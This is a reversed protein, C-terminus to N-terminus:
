SSDGESSDDQLRSRSRMDRILGRGIRTPRAMEKDFRARAIADKRLNRATEISRSSKKAFLLAVSLYLSSM